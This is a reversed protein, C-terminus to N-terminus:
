DCFLVTVQKMEGPLAGMAGRDPAAVPKPTFPAPSVSDQLGPRDLLAGCQGCFKHEPPNDSGCSPCVAGLRAGCQGCFKM